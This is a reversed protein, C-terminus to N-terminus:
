DGLDDQNRQLRNYPSTINAPFYDGVDYNGADKKLISYGTWPGVLVPDNKLKELTVGELTYLVEIMAMRTWAVHDYWLKSMREPTEQIEKATPPRWMAGGARPSTKEERGQVGAGARGSHTRTRPTTKAVGKTKVPSSVRGSLISKQVSSM